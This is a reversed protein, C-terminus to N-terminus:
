LRKWAEAITEDTLQQFNSIKNQLTNTKGLSFFMVLFANSCLMEGLNVSGGQQFLIMTEGKRIIFIFLSSPMGCGANSRPHHFHQLDGLFKPSSCQCGGLGQWLVPKAVGYQHSSTKLEFSGDGANTEPRTRVNSSSPASFNNICKQSAM